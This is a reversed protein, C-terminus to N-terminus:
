IPLRLDFEMQAAFTPGLSCGSGREDLSVRRLNMLVLYTWRDQTEGIDGVREGNALASSISMSAQLRLSRRSARWAMARLAFGLVM